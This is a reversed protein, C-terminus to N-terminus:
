VNRGPGFYRPDAVAAWRNVTVALLNGHNPRYYRRATDRNPRNQRLKPQGRRLQEHRRNTVHVLALASGMALTLVVSLFIM